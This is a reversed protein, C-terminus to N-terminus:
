YNLSNQFMSALKKKQTLTTKSIKLTEANKLIKEDLLAKIATENQFYIRKEIAKETESKSDFYFILQEKENFLYEYREVNASRKIEIEIKLLRNPYPNKERDGYTYYFKYITQFLGIAPYSGNNKNVVIEALFISSYEGNENSEAIKGNTEQYIKKINEIRKDTQASIQFLMGSLFILFIGNNFQKRLNHMVFEKKREVFKRIM